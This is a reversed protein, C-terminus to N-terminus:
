TIQMIRQETLYMTGKSVHNGGLNHTRTKVLKGDKDSYIVTGIGVDKILKTCLKCPESNLLDNSKNKRIVLLKHKRYNM